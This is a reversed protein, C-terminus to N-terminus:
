ARCPVRWGSAWWEHHLRQRPDRLEALAARVLEPTRPRPGLPTAYSGAEDLGAGLMALLKAGQREIEAAGTAPALGLVLFANGLHRRLSNETM